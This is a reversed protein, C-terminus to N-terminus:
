NKDNEDANMAVIKVMPWSNREAAAEKLLAIDGM